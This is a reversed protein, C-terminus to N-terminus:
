DREEGGRGGDFDFDVVVCDNGGLILAMTITGPNRVPADSRCGSASVRVLRYPIGDTQTGMGDHCQIGHRPPREM